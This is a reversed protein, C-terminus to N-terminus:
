STGKLFRTALLVAAVGAGLAAPWTGVPVNRALSWVFIAATLAADTVARFPGFARYGQAYVLWFWPFVILPLAGAALGAGAVAQGAAWLRVASLVAVVSLLAGAPILLEPWALGVGGVAACLVGATLGFLPIWGNRRSRGQRAM